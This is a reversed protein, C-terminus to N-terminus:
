RSRKLAPRREFETASADLDDALQRLARSAGLRELGDARAVSTGRTAGGRALSAITRITEADMGRDYGPAIGRALPNRAASQTRRTGHTVADDPGTAFARVPDCTGFQDAVGLTLGPKLHRTRVCKDAGPRNLDPTSMNKGFHATSGTVETPPYSGCRCLRRM